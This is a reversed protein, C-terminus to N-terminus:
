SLIHPVNLFNKLSGVHWVCLHSEYINDCQGHLCVLLDQAQAQCFVFNLTFHGNSTM